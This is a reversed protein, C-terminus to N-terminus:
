PFKLHLLDIWYEEQQQNIFYASVRSRRRRKARANNNNNNGGNEHDGNVFYYNQDNGCDILFRKVSKYRQMIQFSSCVNFCPYQNLFLEQKTEVNPDYKIGDDDDDDDCSGNGYADGCFMQANLDDSKFCICKCLMAVSTYYILQVNQVTSLSHILRQLEMTQQYYYSRQGTNSTLNEANIYVDVRKFKQFLAIIHHFIYKAEAYIANIVVITNFPNLVISENNQLINTTREHIICNMKSELYRLIDLGWSIFHDPNVFCIRRRQQRTNNNRNNEIATTTSRNSTSSQFTRNDNNNSMNYNGFNINVQKYANNFTQINKSLLVHLKDSLNITSAIERAINANNLQQRRRDIDSDRKKTIRLMKNSTNNANNGNQVRSRKHPLKINTFANNTNGNQHNGVRIGRKNNNNNNNPSRKVKKRIGVDVNDTSNDNNNNDSENMMM